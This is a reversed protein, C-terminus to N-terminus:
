YDPIAAGIARLDAAIGRRAAFIDGPRSGRAAEIEEVSYPVFERDLSAGGFQPILWNMLAQVEENGLGSNMVGPIQVVFRRGEPLKMFHGIQGALRPIRGEASGSGDRVHCGSCHLVYLYEGRGAAAAPAAALIMAVFLVGEITVKPQGLCRGQNRFRDHRKLKEHM